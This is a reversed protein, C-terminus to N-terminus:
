GAIRRRPRSDDPAPSCDSTKQSRVPHESRRIRPTDWLFRRTNARRNRRRGSVIPLRCPTEAVARHLDISEAAKLKMVRKAIKGWAETGRQRAAPMANAVRDRSLKIHDAPQTVALLPDLWPAYGTALRPAARAGEETSM